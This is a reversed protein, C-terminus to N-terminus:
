RGTGYKKKFFIPFFNKNKKKILLTSKYNKKSKRIIAYITFKNKLLNYVLHGGIFGTTGTLLIRNM